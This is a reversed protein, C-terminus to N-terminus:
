RFRPPSTKYSQIGLDGALPPNIDSLRQGFLFRSKGKFFPQLKGKRYSQGYREGNRYVTISNDKAYVIAIHILEGPQAAEAPGGVLGKM